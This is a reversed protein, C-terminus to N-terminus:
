LLLHFPNLDLGQHAGWLGEVWLRSLVKLAGLLQLDLVQHAGWLEEVTLRYLVRRLALVESSDGLVPCQLVAGRGQAM